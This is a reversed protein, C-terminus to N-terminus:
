LYARVYPVGYYLALAAVQGVLYFTFDRLNSGREEATEWINDYWFEKAAAFATMLVAALWIWRAGFLVITGWIACAGGLMHSKQALWDFEEDTIM